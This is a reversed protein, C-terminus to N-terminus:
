QKASNTEIDLESEDLLEFDALDSDESPQRTSILAQPISPGTAATDDGDSKKDEEAPLETIRASAAASGIVSQSLRSLMSAATVSTLTKSVIETAASLLTANVNETSAEMKPESTLESHVDPFALGAVLEDGSDSDSDRFHSDEFRISDSAPAPAAAAKAPKVPESVESTLSSIEQISTEDFSPIESLGASFSGEM